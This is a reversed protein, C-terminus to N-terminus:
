PQCKPTSTNAHMSVNTHTNECMRAAGVPVRHVTKKVLPGGLFQTPTHEM